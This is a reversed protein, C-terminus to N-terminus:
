FGVKSTATSRDPIQAPDDGHLLAYLDALTPEAPVADADVEAGKAALWSVGDLQDFAPFFSEQLCRGSRMVAPDIYDIQENATLLFVLRLGQGIIGDTLNLLRAFGSTNRCETSFLKAYDEIIVLRLPVEDDDEDVYPMGRFRIAQMRANVRRRLQTHSLDAMLVSYMYSANAFLREPDLIVEVTAGLREAWERALMRISYTKGTGPPGHWLVIKGQEDPKDMHVLRELRQRVEPGYNDAIEDFKPCALDRLNYDPPQGDCWFAFPIQGSDKEIPDQKPIAEVFATLVERALALEPAWVTVGLARRGACASVTVGREVDRLLVRAADGDRVGGSSATPTLAAVEVKGAAELLGELPHKLNCDQEESAASAPAGVIAEALMQTWWADSFSADTYHVPIREAM